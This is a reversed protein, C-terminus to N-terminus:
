NVREKLRRTHKALSQECAPEIQYQNPRKTKDPCVYARIHPPAGISELCEAAGPAAQVVVVAGGPQETLERYIDSALTEDSSIRGLGGCLPCTCQLTASLSQRVKKRTMEVLGLGTMGVLNTKTRDRRLEQAFCALLQERHEEEEMDIFDIVVIGGIDRLRLQRAIEEAAELNTKFITESLSHRGVFKGTNVDIVTLAEAYDFVLYGGSKLWVRRSLAKEAQSDVRFKRFLGGEKEPIIKEELEPSLLQVADHLEKLASEGEVRVTDVDDTLLDRVASYMLGADRHLLAPAAIHRQKGDLSEWLRRLGEVDKRLTEADAGAAATRIILGMGSPRISEGLERLRTKEEESEIRRSVGVYEVTPLLVVMRGPLTVHSTIRPGKEGIPEKIVQVLIEQGPRVLSRIPKSALDRTLAEAGEGLDAPDVQIDGAHLFANKDIGIDVFAAQMGPLVNCVRGKYLNGGLKKHGEREYYLEVLDGDEMVALRTQGAISEVLLEKRM